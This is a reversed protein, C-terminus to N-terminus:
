GEGGVAIGLEKEKLLTLIRAIERKLTRVRAVDTLQATAVQFRLNFLESQAETLKTVLEDPAMARLEATKAM